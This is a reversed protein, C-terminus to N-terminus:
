TPIYNGKANGFIRPETYLISLHWHMITRNIGSYLLYRCNYVEM